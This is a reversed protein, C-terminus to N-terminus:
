REKENGQDIGSGYLSSPSISGESESSKVLAIFLLNSKLGLYSKEAGSWWGETM